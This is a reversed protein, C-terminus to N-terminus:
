AAAFSSNGTASITSDEDTFLAFLLTTTNSAAVRADTLVGIAEARDVWTQWQEYYHRQTEYGSFSVARLGAVTTLPALIADTLISLDVMLSFYRLAQRNFGKQTEYVPLAAM